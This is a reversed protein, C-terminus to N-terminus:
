YEASIRLLFNRPDGYYSNMNLARNNVNLFYRRDFINNVIFSAKIKDTIKYHVSADYVVFGGQELTYPYKNITNKTRSQVQAGAGVTWRYAPGPLEFTTYARLIHKATYPSYTDGEKSPDHEYSSTNFTYGAFVNWGPLIEGSAELEVGRSVVEGLAIAIDSKPDPYDARNNQSLHFIAISTNLKRDFWESKLGLEYNEGVM